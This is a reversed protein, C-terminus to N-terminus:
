KAPPRMQWLPRAPGQPNLQVTEMKPLGGCVLWVVLQIQKFCELAAANQLQHRGRNPELM